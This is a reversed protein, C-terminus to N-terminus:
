VNKIINCIVYNTRQKNKLRTLSINDQEKDRICFRFIIINRKKLHHTYTYIYKKTIYCTECLRCQLLPATFTNEVRGTGPNLQRNDNKVPYTYKDYITSMDKRTFYNIELLAEFTHAGIRIFVSKLRYWVCVCIYVDVSFLHLSPTKSESTWSGTIKKATLWYTMNLSWIQAASNADSALKLGTAFSFFIVRM